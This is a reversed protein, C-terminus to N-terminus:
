ETPGNGDGLVERIIAALERIVLPKTVFAKVGMRKAIDEDIQDSYGTCLIIPTGPRVAMIERALRQGTLHPMTQDTIVLDYSEPQARFAELAETSSTRVSVTYGLRELMTQFIRVMAPEDDVFLVSETGRPIDKPSDTEVDSEDDVVPFYIEFTTGVGIESDVTIAGGHQSVIGHVVALGMGTGGGVDKTTFYPEFIRDIEDPPIGHGTDSIRLRAYDGATLHAITGADKDDLHVRVLSVNLIGGKERMAHSANTCLNLLVQDIQTSDGMVVGVDGPMDERIDITTPTASRILRLSESVVSDIRIPRAQHESQRSFALIQRTVERARLCADRIENLHERPEDMDSLGTMAIETNALIIALINNFDHAVGGALAGIAEMKQSQQLQEELRRRDSIDRAIGLVVDKGQMNIPLTRIEVIVRKGDKTNLALEDPGTAKREASMALSEAAMPLQDSPLLGLQLVNGGIMERRQYGTLDEAIHNWDIVNGELDIMFYADPAYEFLARFREESERLTKEALKRESIDITFGSLYKPTGDIAIPFKTTEYLRGGFEEEVVTPQGEALIRQDDAVMDKALDSPFLEDMTKGLLEDLPRGLMQEYNRSLRISRIDTDKFFM